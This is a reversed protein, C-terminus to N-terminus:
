GFAGKIGPERGSQPVCEREGRRVAEGREARNQLVGQGVDDCPLSNLGFSVLDSIDEIAQLCQVGM